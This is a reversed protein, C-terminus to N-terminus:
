AWIVFTFVQEGNPLERQYEAVSRPSESGRVLRGWEGREGEPGRGETANARATTAAAVTTTADLHGGYITVLQEYDHANPHQNTLPLNTYDMCSDLNANSFNEDQHGLGLTHGVEQCMVLNRWAPTNYAATNFYTDNVKVTGQTIHSGSIWVQAVGLWGNAGYTSNCVQVSGAKAGCRKYNAGQVVKTDLVASGTWDGSTTVLSSDWAGSVNDGLQLTFPSAKRAWHYNGWSNNADAPLAVAGVMVMATILVAAGRLWSARM